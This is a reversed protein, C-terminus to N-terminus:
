GYALHIFTVLFNFCVRKLISSFTLVFNLLCLSQCCPWFLGSNTALLFFAFQVHWSTVFQALSSLPPPPPHRPPSPLSQLLLINTKASKIQSEHGTNQVDKVQLSGQFINRSVSIYPLRQQSVIRFYKTGHQKHCRLEAGRVCQM